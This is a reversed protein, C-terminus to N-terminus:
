KSPGCEGQDGGKAGGAGSRSARGRIAGCRLAGSQEGAECSSHRLGVERLRHHVPVTARSGPPVVIGRMAANSMNREVLGTVPTGGAVAALEDREDAARRYVDGSACM